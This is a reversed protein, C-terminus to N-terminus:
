GWQLTILRPLVYFDQEAGLQGATQDLRLVVAGLFDQAGFEREGDLYWALDVQKGRADRLVYDLYGVSTHPGRVPPVKITLAM